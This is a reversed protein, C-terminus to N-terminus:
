KKETSYENNLEELVASTIDLGDRAYAISGSQNAILIMKYNHKKGYTVLFANIQAVVSQTLKGDEQKANDQIGRQYDGLQKQKVQILQKALAQEKPSMTALTKEYKQISSKVENTLTDMNDQWVKAKAQFAKKAELSGKYDNFIKASDVYAIKENSFFYSFLLFLVVCAVAIHYALTFYNVQNKNTIQKPM